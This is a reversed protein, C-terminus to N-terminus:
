SAGREMMLSKYRSLAEKAAVISGAKRCFEKALLLRAVRPNTPAAKKREIHKITSVYSRPVELDHTAKLYDCVEGLSANPYDKLYSRIQAAVNITKKSRKRKAM